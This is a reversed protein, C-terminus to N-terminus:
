QNEARFGNYNANECTGLFSHLEVIKRGLQCKKYDDTTAYFEKELAVLKAEIERIVQERDYKTNIEQM